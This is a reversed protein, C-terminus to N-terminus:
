NKSWVCRDVLNAWRARLDQADVLADAFKYWDLTEVGDKKNADGSRQELSRADIVAM